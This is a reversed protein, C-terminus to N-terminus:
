VNLVVGYYLNHIINNLSLNNDPFIGFSIKLNHVAAKYLMHMEFVCMM